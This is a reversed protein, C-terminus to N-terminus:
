DAFSIEDLINSKAGQAIKAVEKATNIITSDAVGGEMTLSYDLTIGVMNSLSLFGFSNQNQMEVVRNIERWLDDKKALNDRAKKELLVARFRLLEPGNSKVWVMVIIKLDMDEDNSPYTIDLRANGFGEPEKMVANLGADSFIRGLAEVNDYDIDNSTIIKM